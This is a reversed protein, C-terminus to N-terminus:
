SYNKPLYKKCKNSSRQASDMKIFNKSGLKMKYFAQNYITGHSFVDDTRLKKFLWELRIKHTFTHNEM